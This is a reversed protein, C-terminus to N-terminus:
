GVVLPYAFIGKPRRDDHVPEVGRGLGGHEGGSEGAACFMGDIYIQYAVAMVNEKM